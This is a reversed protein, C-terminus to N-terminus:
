SIERKFVLFSAGIVVVFFALLIIFDGAVAFASLGKTMIGRLSDAAYTIPLFAAISQLVKPMAQIPFFAGSLFITPMSILMSMAIYQQESKAVTSLLLGIGTSVGAYVIIIAAIALWSGEIKINFLLTAVFLLFTSRFIEFIIYFLLTGLLITINSTPTLFVRTLSGERKEGAIARGMGMVAGQFITLAIISPIIFDIARKGNGYPHQEALTLPKVLATPKATTFAHIANVPKDVPAPDAQSGAIAKIDNVQKEAEALVSSSAKLSEINAKAADFAPTSPLAIQETLNGSDNGEQSKVFVPKPYPLSGEAAQANGDLITKVADIQQQAAAAKALILDYQRETAAASALESGAKGVSQQYRALASMGEESSISSIIGQVAQKGAAAVSSDAEDVLITILASGGADVTKEMGAPLIVVVKAAGSDLLHEAKGQTSVMARISLTDSSSIGSIIKSSLPSVDYDVVATSIHRPTNGSTFGFIMIMFIPFLILPFLRTKDRILVIFNKQIIALLKALDIFRENSAM